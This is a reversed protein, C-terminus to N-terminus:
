DLYLLNYHASSKHTIFDSTLLTVQLYTQTQVSQAGIDLIAERFRLRGIANNTHFAPNVAAFNQRLLLTFALLRHSCCSRKLQSSVALLQSSSINIGFFTLYRLCCRPRM